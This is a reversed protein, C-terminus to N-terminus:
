LKSADKRVAENRTESKEKLLADHSFLVCSETIKGCMETALISVTRGRWNVDRSNFQAGARTKVQETATSTPKGYRENLLVLMEEFRDRSVRLTIMAVRGASLTASGAAMIPTNSLELYDPSYKDIRYCFPGSGYPAYGGGSKECEPVGSEALPAGMTVGMVTTPEKAWQQAAAATVCLALAPGMFKRM